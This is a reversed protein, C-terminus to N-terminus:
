FLCHLGISVQHRFRSKEQFLFNKWPSFQYNLRYEAGMKLANYLPIELLVGGGVGYSSDNLNSASGYKTRNRVKGGSLILYLKPTTDPTLTYKVLASVSEKEIYELVPWATDKSEQRSWEVGVALTDWPRFFGQMNGGVMRRSATYGMADSLKGYSMAGAAAVEWKPPTKEKCPTDEEFTPNPRAVRYIQAQAPSAWAFACGGFLACILLHSIKGRKLVGM